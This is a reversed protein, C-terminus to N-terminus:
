PGFPPPRPDVGAQSILGPKVLELKAATYGAHRIRSRIFECPSWHEVTWSTAFASVRPGCSILEVAGSDIQRLRLEVERRWGDEADGEEITHDLSEILIRSM